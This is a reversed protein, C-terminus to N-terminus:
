FELGGTDEDEDINMSDFDLRTPCDDYEVCKPCCYESGEFYDECDEYEPCLECCM